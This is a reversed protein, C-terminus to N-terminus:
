IAALVSPPPDPLPSLDRVERVILDLPPRAPRILRVWIHPVCVSIRIEAASVRRLYSGVIRSFEAIDTLREFLVDSRGRPEPFQEFYRQLISPRLLCPETHCDLMQELAYLVSYDLGEAFAVHLTRTSEVFDVPAMGRWRMLTRPIAPGRRSGALTETRLVPCSWQRALAATVQEESAYGLKQLWEGIRGYGAEQQAALATRLQGSTLQQRAVLLLGLPVRHRVAARGPVRCAETLADRLAPQLCPDLCYRSGRLLIQRGRTRLRQWYHRNRPCGPAQCLPALRSWFGRGPVLVSGNAPQTLAKATM